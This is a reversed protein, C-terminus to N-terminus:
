NSDNSHPSPVLLGGDDRFGVESFDDDTIFVHGFGALFIAFQHIQQCLPFKEASEWFRPLSPHM